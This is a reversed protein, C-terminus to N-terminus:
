AGKANELTKITISKELGEIREVLQESFTRGDGPLNLYSAAKSIESQLNMHWTSLKEIKKEKEELQFELKQNREVFQLYADMIKSIEKENESLLSLLYQIDQYTQLFQGPVNVLYCGKSYRKKIEGIEDGVPYNSYDEIAQYNEKEDMLAEKLMKSM